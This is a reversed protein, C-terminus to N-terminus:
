FPFPKDRFGDCLAILLTHLPKTDVETIQATWSNVWYKQVSWFYSFQIHAAWSCLMVAVYRMPCIAMQAWCFTPICFLWKLKTSSMSQSYETPHSFKLTLILTLFLYATSSQFLSNQPGIKGKSQFPTFCQWQGPTAFFALVLYILRRGKKYIVNKTKDMQNYASKTTNHMNIVSSKDKNTMYWM